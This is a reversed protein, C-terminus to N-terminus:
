IRARVRRSEDNAANDDDHSLLQGDLARRRLGPALPWSSTLYEEPNKEANAVDLETLRFAAARSPHIGDEAPSTRTRKSRRQSSSIADDDSWEEDEGLTANIESVVTRKLEEQEQNYTRQQPPRATEEEDEAGIDGRM